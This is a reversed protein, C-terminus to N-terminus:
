ARALMRFRLLMHLDQQARPLVTASRTNCWGSWALVIRQLFRLSRFAQPVNRLDLLPM